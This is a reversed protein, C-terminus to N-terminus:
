SSSSTAGSRIDDVFENARHAGYGIGLGVATWGVMGLPGSAAAISFSVAVSAGAVCNFLAQAPSGGGMAGLACGTATNYVFANVGGSVQEMEDITLERM